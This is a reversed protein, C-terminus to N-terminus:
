IEHLPQEQAVAARMVRYITVKEAKGKLPLIGVLKTHFQNDLLKYTTEGILIRCYANGSEGDALDKDFGELRSATNVTDGVVAYEMRDASGLSGAMLPGTYIGVRMSGMQMGKETWQKNLRLLAEEMALACRVANIADQKVERETTRILPVGFVAMVSDGFYKHVVGGNDIVARTTANMYENLWDMVGAPGLQESLSSYGKLDTFLVTATVEQARLKGGELFADRQAWITEAVERSVHKSFLSMISGRQTKEYYSAYSVVVVASVLFAVAPTTSLIWFGARFGWWACAGLALVCAGALVVFKWPSRVWFGIATGLLCWALIWSIQKWEQWVRLPQDGNLAARLLQNLLLAHVVLGRHKYSMPTVLYDINEVTNGVLVIKNSLAGAPIQGLLTQSLTYTTFNTPGKFDLLLQYGAADANVYAGDDKEFPRFVTKGLRFYNPNEAVPEWHVDKTDLYFSALQLAFCYFINTGDDLYLVGRRVIKDIQYDPTFSNIGWRDPYPKLVPPPPIERHLEDGFSGIFIINSNNTLVSNLQPLQTGNKPVPLNRYLDVGIVCPQQQELLLLMKALDADWMPWDGLRPNTIDDETIEILVIRPDDDATQARWRVFSDYVRLELWQFLGFERVTLVAGCALVGILLSVLKPSSRIKRSLSVM